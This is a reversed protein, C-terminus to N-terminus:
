LGWFRTRGGGRFAPLGIPAYAGSHLLFLYLSLHRLRRGAPSRPQAEFMISRGACVADNLYVSVDRIHEKLHNATASCGLSCKRLTSRRTAMPPVLLNEYEWSEWFSKRLTDPCLLDGM